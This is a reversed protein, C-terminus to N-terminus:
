TNEGTHTHTHTHTNHTYHPTHHTTLTVTDTTHAQTQPTTHAQTQLTTHPTSTDTTHVHTHTGSNCAGFLSRVNFPVTRSQRVRDDHNRRSWIAKLLIRNDVEGTAYVSRGPIAGM